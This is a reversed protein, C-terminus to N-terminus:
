SLNILQELLGTDETTSGTKPILKLRHQRFNGSWDHVVRYDKELQPLLALLGEDKKQFTWNSSADRTFGRILLDAVYFDAQLEELLFCMVEAPSRHGCTVVDLDLRFVLPRNGALDHGPDTYSHSAIHSQDLHALHGTEALLACASTGAAEYDAHSFSLIRVALRDACSRILREQKHGGFSESVEQHRGLRNCLYVTSLHLSRVQNSFGSNGAPESM